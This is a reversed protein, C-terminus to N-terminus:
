AEFYSIALLYRLYVQLFKLFKSRPKVRPNVKTEYLLQKLSRFFSSFILNWESKPKHKVKFNLESTIRTPSKANLSNM